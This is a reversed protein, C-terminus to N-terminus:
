GTFDLGCTREKERLYMKINDTYKSRPKEFTLKAESKGVLTNYVNRVMKLGAAYEVSVVTKSKNV